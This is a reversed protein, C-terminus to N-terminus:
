SGKLEVKLIESKCLICGSSLFFSLVVGKLFTLPVASVSQDSLRNVKM